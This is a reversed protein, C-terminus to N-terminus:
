LAHGAGNLLLAKSHGLLTKLNWSPWRGSLFVLSM